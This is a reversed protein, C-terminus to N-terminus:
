HVHYLASKKTCYMVKSAHNVNMMQFALLAHQIVIMALMAKNIHEKMARILASEKTCFKAGKAHFVSTKM